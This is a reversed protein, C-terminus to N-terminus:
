EIPWGSPKPIEVPDNMYFTGGWADRPPSYRSKFVRNSGGYVAFVTKWYGGGSSAGNIYGQKAEVSFTCRVTNTQEATWVGDFTRGNSCEPYSSFTHDRSFVYLTIGDALVLKGDTKIVDLPSLYEAHTAQVWSILILLWTVAAKM